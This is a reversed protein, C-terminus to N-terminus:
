DRVCEEVRASLRDIAQQLAGHEERLKEYESAINLAALIALNLTTVEQSAIALDRMKRDVLQAVKCVHEPGDESAVAFTQGFVQVEVVQKMESRSIWDM